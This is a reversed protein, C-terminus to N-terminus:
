LSICRDFFLLLYHWPNLPVKGKDWNFAAVGFLRVRRYYIGAMLNGLDCARLNRYLMQDARKRAKVCGGLQYAWYHFHCAPRLDVGGFEDPAWSCGNSVFDAPPKFGEMRSLLSEPLDANRIEKM